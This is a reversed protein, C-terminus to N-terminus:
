WKKELNWSTTKTWEYSISKISRKSIYRWGIKKITANVSSKSRINYIILNDKGRSKLSIEKKESDKELNLILFIVNEIFRHQKALLIKAASIKINSILYKMRVYWNIVLTLNTQDELELPYFKNINCQLKENRIQDIM